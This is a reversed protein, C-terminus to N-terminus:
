IEEVVNGSAEHHVDLFVFVSHFRGKGMCESEEGAAAKQQEGLAGGFVGVAAKIGIGIAFGRGLFEVLVHFLPKEMADIDVIVAQDGERFPLFEIGFHGLGLEEIGIEVAITEDAARLGVFSEVAIAAQRFKEGEDIDIFVASEAVLFGSIEAACEIQCFGGGRDFSQHFGRLRVLSDGWEGIFCGGSGASSVCLRKM